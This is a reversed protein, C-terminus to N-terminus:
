IEILPSPSNPSVVIALSTTARSLAVYLRCRMQDTGTFHKSDCPMILVNHCEVGKAKHITSIAKRPMPSRVYKRKRTIEMMATNADDFYAFQTAERLERRLDVKIDGFDNDDRLLDSLVVLARAVGRHDPTEVICKAVAQIKEPKGRRKCRCREAVERRMIEGYKTNSFGKTVHQVFAVFAEGISDVHGASQQCTRALMSMAERTHGEWIPLRRNFFARLLQVADNTTTLVLLEASDTVFKDIEKRVATSYAIHHLSENDAKIVMLGQPLTGALDIKRGSKLAERAQLVWEGLEEAANQWRHPTKLEVCHDATQRLSDWRKKMAEHGRKSRAYLSQMPDGFIRTISGAGHLCLIIEHQHESSDQYEDCILYPYRTALAVAISPVRKLLRAVREAVLDFGNERERAWAAVDPSMGIAKHYSTAILTILSDITRIEIRSGFGKTRTSFVDCAANTHTLILLRGPVLQPLLAKAYDAGQYTKGCGAPAEVLVLRVSSRLAVAVAGDSV